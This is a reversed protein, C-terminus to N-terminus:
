PEKSERLHVILAWAGFAVCILPLIWPPLEITRGCWALLLYRPLRGVAVAALFRATPYRNAVALAKFPWFPLPTLGSLAIIAFPARDFGRLMRGLLGRQESPVRRKILLPFLLVRDIWSAAVTGLTAVIATPVIGLERGYWIVIPEHPVFAMAVNTLLAAFFLTAIM